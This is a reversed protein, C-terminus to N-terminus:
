LTLTASEGQAVRGRLDQERGRPAVRGYARRM